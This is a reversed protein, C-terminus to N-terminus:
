GRGLVVLAVETGDAMGREVVGEHGLLVVFALLMFFLQGLLLKHLGIPWGSCWTPCGRTALSKENQLGLTRRLFVIFIPPTSIYINIYVSYVM